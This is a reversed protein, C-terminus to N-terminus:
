IGNDKRMQTACIQAVLEIDCEYDNITEQMVFRAEPFCGSLLLLIALRKIMVSM